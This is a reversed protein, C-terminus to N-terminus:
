PNWSVSFSAIGTLPPNQYYLCYSYSMGGGALLATNNTTATNTFPVGVGSTLNAGQLGFPGGLFTFSCSQGQQMLFVQTWGTAIFTPTELTTSHFRIAAGSDFCYARLFGSSGSIVSGPTLGLTTCLAESNTTSVVVAPVTQLVDTPATKAVGLGAGYSLLLSALILLLLSKM